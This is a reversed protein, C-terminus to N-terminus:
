GVTNVSGDESETYETLSRLIKWLSGQYKPMEVWVRQIISSVTHVRETEGQLAAELSATTSPTGDIMEEIKKAKNQFEEQNPPPPPYACDNSPQCSWFPLKVELKYHLFGM